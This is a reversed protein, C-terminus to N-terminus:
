PKDKSPKFSGGGCLLLRKIKGVATVVRSQGVPPEKGSCHDQVRVGKTTQGPISIGAQKFM